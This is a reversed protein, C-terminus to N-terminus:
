EHVIHNKVYDDIADELEMFPRTFGAARAKSMDAETFYQYHARLEKPM